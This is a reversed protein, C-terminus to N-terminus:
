MTITFVQQIRGSISVKKTKREADNKKNNKKPRSFNLFISDPPGVNM